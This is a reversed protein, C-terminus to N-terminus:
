LSQLSLQALYIHYADQKLSVRIYSFLGEKFSHLNHCQMSVPLKGSNNRRGRFFSAVNLTLLWFSALEESFSKESFLFQNQWDFRSSCLFFNFLSTVYIYRGSNCVSINYTYKNILHYLFDLVLDTCSELDFERYFINKPDRELVFDFPLACSGSPSPLPLFKSINNSLFLYSWISKHIWIHDFWFFKIM